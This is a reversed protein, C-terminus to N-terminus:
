DRFDSFNTCAIRFTNHLESDVISSCDGNFTNYVLSVSIPIIITKYSFIAFMVHLKINM